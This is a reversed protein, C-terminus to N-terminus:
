STGPPGRIRLWSLLVTSGRWTGLSTRIRASATFILLHPASTFHCAELGSHVPRPPPWLTLGAGPDRGILADLM